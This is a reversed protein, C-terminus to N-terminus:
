SLPLIVEIIDEIEKKNNIIFGNSLITSLELIEMIIIINKLPEKLEKSNFYILKNFAINKKLQM